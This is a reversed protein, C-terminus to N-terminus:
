LDRPRCKGGICPDEVPLHLQDSPHYEIPSDARRKFTVNFYGVQTQNAVARARALSSSVSIDTGSGSVDSVRLAGPNMANTASDFLLNSIREGPVDALELTNVGIIQDLEPPPPVSFVTANRRIVGDQGHATVEWTFNGYQASGNDSRGDWELRVSGASPQAPYTKVVTGTETKITSEISLGNGLPDDLGQVVHVV